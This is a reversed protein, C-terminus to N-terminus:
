ESVVEDAALRAEVTQAVIVEYEQRLSEYFAAETQERQERLWRQTVAERVDALTAARAPQVQSVRVLHYGFGSRIPGFWENLPASDLAESFVSGFEREIGTADTDDIQGPLMMPDGLQQDSLQRYDPAEAVRLQALLARADTELKGARRQPDLYIQQFSYRPPAQFEIHHRELYEQLDMDSPQRMDSIDASIFEMKQALRRRVLADDRDLGLALAERYLIEERIDGDVLAALESRTPLRQWKREFLAIHREVDRESIVITKQPAAPEGSEISYLAFMLGGLLTFHLLPEKIIKRIM